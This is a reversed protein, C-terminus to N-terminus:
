QPARDGSSRLLLSLRHTGPTTGTWDKFARCFASPSAFGLAHSIQKQSMHGTALYKKALDLRFDQKLQMYTRGNEKLRRNLTSRSFGLSQATSERDPLIGPNTLFLSRIRPEATGTRPLQRLVDQCYQSVVNNLEENNSRIPTDLGPSRLCAVTSEADFRIPCDFKKKYLTYYAPRPYAFSLSHFVPPQTALLRVLRAGSVLFEEIFFRQLEIKQSMPMVTINWKTRGPESVVLRLPYGLLPNSYEHWLRMADRLSRSSLLAYGIIGMNSPDFREGLIFAIDPRGTIRILNTVVAELQEIDILYNPDSLAKPQIGTGALVEKTALGEDKLRELYEALKTIRIM